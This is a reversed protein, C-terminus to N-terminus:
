PAEEELARRLAKLARFQLAKVANSNKGMLSATEDLSCEEGFRLALVDQQEPTLHVFAARVVRQREKAELAEAPTPVQVPDSAPM